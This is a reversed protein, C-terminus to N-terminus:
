RWMAYEVSVSRFKSRYNCTGYNPEIEFVKFGDNLVNDWWAINGEYGGALSSDALPTVDLGTLEV